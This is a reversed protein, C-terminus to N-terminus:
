SQLLLITDTIFLCSNSTIFFPSCNMQFINTRNFYTGQKQQEHKCEFNQHWVDECTICKKCSTCLIFSQTEVYKMESVASHIETFDSYKNIAKRNAIVPDVNKENIYVHIPTLCKEIKYTNPCKFYSVLNILFREYSLKLHSTFYLLSNKCCVQTYRIEYIVSL